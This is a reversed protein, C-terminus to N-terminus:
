FERTKLRAIRIHKRERFVRQWSAAHALNGSTAANSPGGTTYSAAFKHGVPHLAWEVRNFLTEQGGGNGSSPTRETETPVKPSGMGMVVAREGFLWSEFVGGSRPMGDDVIVRRGRFTAIEEGSQSDRIIDILDNKEMRNYVISHVMIMRLERMSDGMLATTDIFAEASFTTLGASFSSGSIDYTLDFQTHETGVPAADNDAFVGKMTAVYCDQLRRVWYDSVRNAIANMPDNGILDGNLDMSSWSKNRSLRVQIEQGTDIGSPTSHQASNDNSINEADDALDNYFPKNFTAGPGALFGSLELDMVVAGSRILASKQMTMTQAYPTFIEPVILDALTVEAM